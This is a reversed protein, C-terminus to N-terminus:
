ETPPPAPPGPPADSWRGSPGALLRGVPTEGVRNEILGRVREFSLGAVARAKEAAMDAAPSSRVKALLQNLQEHRQHGARTGLYYGLAFGTVLGMRTKISM